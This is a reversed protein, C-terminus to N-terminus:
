VVGQECAAERGMPMRGHLPSLMAVAIAAPFVRM